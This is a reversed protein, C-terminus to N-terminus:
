TRILIFYSSFIFMLLEDTSNLDLMENLWYQFFYNRFIRSHLTLTAPKAPQASFEHHRLKIALFDYNKGLIMFRM